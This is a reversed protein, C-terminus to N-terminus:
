FDVVHGAGYDPVSGSNGLKLFLDVEHRLHGPVEISERVARGLVVSNPGGRHRVATERTKLRACHGLRECARQGTCRMANGRGGLRADAVTSKGSPALENDVKM